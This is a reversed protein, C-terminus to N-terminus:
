RATHFDASLDSNLIFEYPLTFEGKRGWKVSWSNIGIVGNLADDFGDFKLAHFGLCRESKLKPVPVNGTRAVASTMMSEYVAIGMVFDYGAAINAKLQRLGNLSYYPFGKRLTANQYAAKSPKKTYLSGKDSYPWLAENCLGVQTVFKCADRIYCGTDANATGEIDRAGWYVFLRSLDVFPLGAKNLHAETMSTVAHAVCSGLNGQDEVHSRWQANSAREPLPAELEEPFFDAYARDRFDMPQPLWGMRRANGDEDFVVQPM